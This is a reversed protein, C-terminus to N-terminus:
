ADGGATAGAGMGGTAGIASGTSGFAAGEVAWDIGGRVGISGM